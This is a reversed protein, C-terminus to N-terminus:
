RLPACNVGMRILRRRHTEMRKLFDAYDKKESGTWLVESMACARPWMKWALDYENWIYESWMQAQSGLVHKRAEPVVGACPDFAYARSLPINGGPYQLPDDELGQRYDYYTETHPNM